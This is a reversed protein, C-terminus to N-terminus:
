EDLMGKTIKIILWGAVITALIYVLLFGAILAEVVHM